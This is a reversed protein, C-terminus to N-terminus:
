GESECYIHITGVAVDLNIKAWTITINTVDVSITGKLGEGTGDPSYAGYSAINSVAPTSGLKNIMSNQGSSDYVGFTLYTNDTSGITLKVKKPIVGLGHSIATPSPATNSATTQTAFVNSYLVPLIWKMGTAQTSDATLVQGNSGVVVEAPTSGASASILSGKATFLSDPIAAVFGAALQGSANLVPIKNEDGAGSSTKVLQDNPAVLRAGTSGTSTHTGMQANTALQYKGAVTESGNPTAGSVRQVWAGATYDYFVGDATVYCMDGNAPSTLAADRATTNDFVPCSAVGSGMFLPRGNFKINAGIQATLGATNLAQLVGSINCFVPSDQNFDSALTPDGTTWDLGELRIGRVVGTATLGDVSLCGAPLLVTEVYGTDGQIGMLTAVALVAGNHDLLPASFTITTDAAVIPAALRPLPQGPLSWQVFDIQSLTPVSTAPTYM